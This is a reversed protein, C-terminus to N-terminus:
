WMCTLLHVEALPAESSFFLRVKASGQAAPLNAVDEILPEDTSQSPAESLSIVPLSPSLPSGSVSSGPLAPAVSAISTETFLPVTGSQSVPSPPVPNPIDSLSVAEIESCNPSPSRAAVKQRKFLDNAPSTESLTEKSRKKAGNPTPTEDVARPETISLSPM